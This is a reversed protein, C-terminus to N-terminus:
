DLPRGADADGQHGQLCACVRCAGWPHPNVCARVSDCATTRDPLGRCWGGSCAATAEASAPPLKSNGSAPAGGAAVASATAYGSRPELSCCAM